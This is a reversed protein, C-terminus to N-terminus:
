KLPWYIRTRWKAPDPEVGPDTWYVEWHGGSTQLSKKELWAALRAQSKAVSDYSGIHWTTATKGAPLEAAKVRGKGEVKKKLPIGAELDIKDAEM